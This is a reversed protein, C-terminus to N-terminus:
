AEEKLWPGLAELLGVMSSQVVTATEGFDAVLVYDSGVTVPEKEMVRMDTMYADPDAIQYRGEGLPIPKGDDGKALHRQGIERELEASQEVLPRLVGLIRRWRLAAGLPISINQQSLAGLAAYANRVAGYTTEIV